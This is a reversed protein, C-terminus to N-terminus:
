VHIDIIPADVVQRNSHGRALVPLHSSKVAAYQTKLFHLPRLSEVLDIVQDPIFPHLDQQMDIEGRGPRLRRFIAMEGDLDFLNVVDSGIQLL